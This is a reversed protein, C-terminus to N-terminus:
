PQVTHGPVLPAAPRDRTPALSPVQRKGTSLEQESARIILDRQLSALPGAFRAACFKVETWEEFLEALSEAVAELDSRTVTFKIPQGQGAARPSVRGLSRYMALALGTRTAPIDLWHPTFLFLQIRTMGRDLTSARLPFFLHDTAFRYLIPPVTRPQEGLDIIDFVFYHYGRELYDAVVPRFGGSGPLAGGRAAVFDTAWKVFADLDETKAITIDHTEIQQHFVIAVGQEGSAGGGRMTGRHTPVRPAHQAILRGVEYFARPPAKEVKTPESPLPIFELVKAADGASLDTSLILVEEDGNWGIIAQQAANSVNVDPRLSQIIIHGRDGRAAGPLAVLGCAALLLALGAGRM